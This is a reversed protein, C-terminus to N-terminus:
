LENHIPSEKSELSNDYVRLQGDYDDAVEASKSDVRNVNGNVGNTTKNERRVEKTEYERPFYLCFLFVQLVCPSLQELASYVSADERISLDM